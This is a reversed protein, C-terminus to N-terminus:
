ACRHCSVSFIVHIGGGGTLVVTGLYTRHDPDGTLTAKDVIVTGTSTVCRRSVSRPTLYFSTTGSHCVLVSSRRGSLVRAFALNVYRNGGTHAMRDASVKRGRFCSIIFSNFRSTSIYNTFNIGYNLHTLNITVGTPSNNICGGFGSSRSLPECVSAPGFSVTVENVPVFSLPGDVSFRVCGVVGMKEFVCWTGGGDNFVLVRHGTGRCTNRIRTTRLSCCNSVTGRSCTQEISRRIYSFATATVGVGGVNAGTYGIFSSPDVKANNRLILPAGVDRTYRGLVSFELGPRFGCGKRTGNVTITLTSIGARTTFGMTSTPGAYGVTVSRDKSRSNNIYNVRTRITTNCRTTGGVIEGARSVGRRLPLNDKSFVISAFNLRLTHFVGRRAGNRSFRITIPIGTNGTTTIVLPNVISLPSRGLEIRTVRVVVPTSLRRTTGVVKLIVRVGTISFSNITCNNGRTGTLLDHVGILVGFWNKFYTALTRVLLTTFGGGSNHLIDRGM